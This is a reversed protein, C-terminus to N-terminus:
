AATELEYWRTVAAVMAWGYAATFIVGVICAYSGLGGLFYAVFVFVAAGAASRSDKLVQAVAAVVNLGAALGRRDTALIVPVVLFHSLLYGLMFLGQLALSAGFFVLPFASSSQRECPAHCPPPLVAVFLTIFGFLSGYFVVLATLLYCFGVVALRWGRRAYGFGARPLQEGGARLNDLYTLMWGASQIAGAVPILGILGMLVIKQIWQPDRAPLTVTEGLTM